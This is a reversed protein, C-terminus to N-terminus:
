RKVPNHGEIVFVFKEIKGVYIHNATFKLLIEDGKLTEIRIDDSLLLEKLVNGYRSHTASILYCEHWTGYKDVAYLKVQDIYSHSYNYGEAIEALKLLYAHGVPVPQTELVHTVVVDVGPNSHINLVGEEVFDNGDWVFLTPCGGGGGGSGDSPWTLDITDQDYDPGPGTAARVIISVSKPNTNEAWIVWRESGVGYAEFTLSNDGLALDVIRVSVWPNDEICKFETIKWGEPFEFWGDGIITVKLKFDIKVKGDDYAYGTGGMSIAPAPFVKVARAAVSFPDTDVISAASVPQQLISVGLLVSLTILLIKITKRNLKM